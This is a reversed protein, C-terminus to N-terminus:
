VSKDRLNKFTFLMTTLSFKLLDILFEIKELKKFVQQHPFCFILTLILSFFGGLNHVKDHGLLMHFVRWTSMISFWRRNIDLTVFCSIRQSNLFIMLLSNNVM